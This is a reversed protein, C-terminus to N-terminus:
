HLSILFDDVSLLPGYKLMRLDLFYLMLEFILLLLLLLLFLLLSPLLSVIFFFLDFELFEDFFDPDLFAEKFIRKCYSGENM